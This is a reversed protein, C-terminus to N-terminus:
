QGHAQDTPVLPVWTECYVIHDTENSTNAHIVLILEFLRCILGHESCGDRIQKRKELFVSMKSSMKNKGQIVYYLQSIVYM